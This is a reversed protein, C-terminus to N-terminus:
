GSGRGHGRRTQSADRQSRPEETGQPRDGQLVQNARENAKQDNLGQDEFEKRLQARKNDYASSGPQAM